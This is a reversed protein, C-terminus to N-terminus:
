IPEWFWKPHGWIVNPKSKDKYAKFERNVRAIFKTGVPYDNSMEKACSVSISPSFPEQGPLPRIHLLGHKGTKIKPIYSEVKLIITKDDKM